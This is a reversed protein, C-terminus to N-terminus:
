ENQPMTQACIPPVTLTLTISNAGANRLRSATSSSADFIEPALPTRVKKRMMMGTIIGAIKTVVIKPKIREKSAKSISSRSPVGM